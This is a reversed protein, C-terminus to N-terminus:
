VVKAQERGVREKEKLKELVKSDKEKFGEMEELLGQFKEQEAKKEEQIEM